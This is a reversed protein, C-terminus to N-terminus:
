GNQMQELLARYDQANPPNMLVIQNIVEMASEKNGKQVLDEGLVDLIAIAEQTRGARHLQAALTRKLLPQDEHDRILSELFTIVL